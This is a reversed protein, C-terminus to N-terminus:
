PSPAARKRRQAVTRRAQGDSQFRLAHIRYSGAPHEQRRRERRLHHQHRGASNSAPKRTAKSTRWSLARSRCGSDAGHFQHAAPRSAFARRDRRSRDEGSGHAENGAGFGGMRGGGRSLPWGRPDPGGRSPTGAGAPSLEGADSAIEYEAPTATINVRVHLPDFAARAADELKLVDLADRPFQLVGQVTFDLMPKEEAGATGDRRGLERAREALYRQSGAYFAEPTAYGTAQLSLRHFPRKWYPRHEVRINPERQTDVDVLYGGGRYATEAVTVPEPSGPNYIWGDSEFPKHVHGMALYQVYPRLAALDAATVNASFNPLVGELGAHMVMITFQATQAPQGLYGAVDSVLRPLTAGYFAIWYVRVDGLDVYAGRNSPLQYPRMVLEGEVTYRPSLLALLGRGSLYDMWSEQKNQLPREHNGTVGVAPIGAERCSRWSGKPKGCLRRVSAANIFCIARM